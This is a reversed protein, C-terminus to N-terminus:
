EAIFRVIDYLNESVICRLDRARCAFWKKVKYPPVGYDIVIHEIINVINSGTAYLATEDLWTACRTLERTISCEEDLKTDELVYDIYKNEELWAIHTLRLALPSVLVRWTDGNIDEMGYYMVYINYRDNLKLVTTPDLVYVYGNSKVILFTHQDNDAIFGVLYTDRVGARYLLAQVALAIDEDDGGTFFTEAVTKWRDYHEVVTGNPLVISSPTDLVYVSAIGVILSALLLKESDRVAGELLQILSTGGIEVEHELERVEDLSRLFIHAYCDELKSLDVTCFGNEVLLKSVSSRYTDVQSRLEEVLSRLYTLNQELENLRLQLLEKENKIKSLETKLKSINLQLEAKELELTSAHYHEYAAVALVVVLLAGFIVALITEPSLRPM